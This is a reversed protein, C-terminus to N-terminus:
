LRVKEGFFRQKEEEDGKGLQLDQSFVHLCLVRCGGMKLVSKAQKMKRKIFSGLFVFCKESRAVQLKVKNTNPEGM